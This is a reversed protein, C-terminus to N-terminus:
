SNWIPLIPSHFYLLSVSERWIDGAARAMCLTSYGVKVGPVDTIDNYKGTTGSLPIGPDRARATM